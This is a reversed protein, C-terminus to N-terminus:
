LVLDQCDRANIAEIATTQKGEPRTLVIDRLQVGARHEIEIFPAEPNTQIIRGPGYLGSGDSRIVIKESIEYDGAPIFLMRGPQADLTEQITQNSTVIPFAQKDGQAFSITPTILVLLM